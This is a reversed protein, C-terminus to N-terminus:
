IVVDAWKKTYVSDELLETTKGAYMPGIIMDISAISDFSM